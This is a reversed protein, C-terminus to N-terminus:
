LVGSSLSSTGTDIMAKIRDANYVNHTTVVEAIDERHYPEEPNLIFELLKVQTPQMDEDEADWYPEEGTNIMHQTVRYLAVMQNLREAPYDGHNNAPHLRPHLHWSDFYMSPASYGGTLGLAVAVAMYDNAIAEDWDSSIGATFQSASQCDWPHSTIRQLTERTYTGLSPLAQDLEIKVMADSYMASLAKALANSAAEFLPMSMM